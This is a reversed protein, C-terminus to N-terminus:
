GNYIYGCLGIAILVLIYVTPSCGAQVGLSPTDEIIEQETRYFLLYVIAVSVTGGIIAGLLFM